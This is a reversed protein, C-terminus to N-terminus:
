GAFKRQGLPCRKRHVQLRAEYGEREQVAAIQALCPAVTQHSRAVVRDRAERESESGLAEKLADFAALTVAAEAMECTIETDTM